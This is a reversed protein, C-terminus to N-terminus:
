DPPAWNIGRNIYNTGWKYPKVSGDLIGANAFNKHRYDIRNVNEINNAVNASPYGGSVMVKYVGGTQGVIGAVHSEILIITKPYLLSIKQEVPRKIYGKTYMGANNYGWGGAPYTDMGGITQAYGIVALTKRPWYSRSSCAAVTDALLNDNTRNPCEFIKYKPNSLKWAMESRNDGTVYSYLETHTAYEQTPRSLYGNFDGAYLHGGLVIQRIKNTCSIARAKERASNLAPLLMGALIAIIAIVILLEILTFKGKVEKGM